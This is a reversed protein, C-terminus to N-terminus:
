VPSESSSRLNWFIAKFFYGLHTFQQRAFYKIFTKPITFLVFFITFVSLQLFDCNRRMYLIRNRTLYYEKIPNAKGISSAGKHFIEAEAAYWITYGAKQIRVSWDWEEYYMFFKEPFMGTKEVVEKKVMMACGHAGHTPGSVNHQGKDVENFGLASVRGTYANMPKFGAYEITDRRHFMKIKPCVVGISSDNLFPQLLKSLLDPTVITDNNIILYYDGKAQRMGWNNGGAFGLNQGNLLLRTNPYREVDIIDAPNEESGM